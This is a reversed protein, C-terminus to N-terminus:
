LEDGSRREQVIPHGDLLASMQLSWAYGLAASALAVGILTTVDESAAVLLWSLGQVILAATWQGLGARFRGFFTIWLAGAMLLNSVVLVIRLTETDFIM